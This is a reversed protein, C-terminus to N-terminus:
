GQEKEHEAVLAKVEELTIKGAKHLRDLVDLAFFGSATSSHTCLWDSPTTGRPKHKKPHSPKLIKHSTTETIAKTM